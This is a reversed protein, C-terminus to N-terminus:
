NKPAELWRPKVVHGIASTQTSYAHAHLIDKSDLIWSGAGLPWSAYWPLDIYTALTHTHMHVCIRLIWFGFGSDPIRAQPRSASRDASMIRFGFGSDPIWFGPDPDPRGSLERCDM